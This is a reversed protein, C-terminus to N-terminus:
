RHIPCEYGNVEPSRYGSHTLQVLPRRRVTEWQTQLPLTTQLRVADLGRGLDRGVWVGIYMSKTGGRTPPGRRLSPTLPPGPIPTYHTCSSKPKTWLVQTRTDIRKAKRPWSPTRVTFHQGSSKILQKVQSDEVAKGLGQHKPV